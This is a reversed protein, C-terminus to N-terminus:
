PESRRVMLKLGWWAVVVGAVVGVGGLKNPSSGGVGIVAYGGGAIFGLGLVITALGFLLRSARNANIVALIATRRRFGFWGAGILGGIMGVMSGALWWPGQGDFRHERAVESLYAGLAIALLSGVVLVIGAVGGQREDQKSDLKDSM